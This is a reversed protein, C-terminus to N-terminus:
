YLKRSGFPRWSYVFGAGKDRNSFVIKAYNNKEPDPTYPERSIIWKGTSSDFYYFIMKQEKANFISRVFSGTVPLGDYGSVYRFNGTKATSQNESYFYQKNLTNLNPDFSEESSDQYIVLAKPNFFQSNRNTETRQYFSEEPSITVKGPLTGLGHGREGRHNSESFIFDYDTLPLDTENSYSGSGDYGDTYGSVEGSDVPVLSTEGFIPPNNLGAQGFPFRNDIDPTDPNTVTPLPQLFTRTSGYEKTLIDSQDSGNYAFAKLTLLSSSTPLFLENELYVFSSVTPTSGDLTYFVTAPIDTEFLVYKPIGAAIQTTSETITLNIM